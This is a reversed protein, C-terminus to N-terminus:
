KAPQIQFVVKLKISLKLKGKPVPTGAKAILTTYAGFTLAFKTLYTSAAQRGASDKIINETLTKNAPIGSLYGVITNPTKNLDGMKIDLRPININVSNTVVQVEMSQIDISAVKRGHQKIISHDSIDLKQTVNIPIKVDPSGTPIKGDKSPVKGTYQDINIEDLDITRSIELPITINQIKSWCQAAMLWPAFAVLFLLVGRIGLKRVLLM